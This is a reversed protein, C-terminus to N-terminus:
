KLRQPLSNEWLFDVKASSETSKKKWRERLDQFNLRLISGNISALVSLCTIILRSITCPWTLYSSTSALVIILIISSTPIKLIDGNSRSIQKAKVPPHHVLKKRRLVKRDHPLHLIVLCEFISPKHGFKRILEENNISSITRVNYAGEPTREERTDVVPLPSPDTGKDDSIRYITVEPRPYVNMTDCRLLNSTAMPSTNAIGDGIDDMGGISDDKSEGRTKRLASTMEKTERTYNFNISKPPAYIILRAKRSVENDSSLVNCSYEGSLEITPKIIKIARYRTQRNSPDVSFDMSIRNEFRSSAFRSDIEPIWQYIPEPDNDLFWKVVLRPDRTDFCYDCDLVISDTTGNEIMEPVTLKKIALESKSRCVNSNDEKPRDFVPYGQLPSTLITRILICMNIICSIVNYKMKIIM